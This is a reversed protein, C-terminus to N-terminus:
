LSGDPGREYGAQTIEIEVLSRQSIFMRALDVGWLSNKKEKRILTVVGIYSNAIPWITVISM